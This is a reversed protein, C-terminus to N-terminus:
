SNYLSWLEDLNKGGQGYFSSGMGHGSPSRGSFPLSAWEPALKDMVTKFEEKSTIVKDPNVGRRETLFRGAKEQSEPSFDTLGLANKAEDWTTSLFQYAGSADSTYGGGTRRQRPHKSMDSFQTGTFQTTYGKDGTTGEGYRIVKSLRGWGESTNPLSSSSTSPLVSGSSVGVNPNSSVKSSETTSGPTMLTTSPTSSADPNISQKLLKILEEDRELKAKDIRTQEARIEKNEAERLQREKALERNEKIMVAGSAVAGLGAVAGAFRKSPAEIAEVKENNKRTADAEQKNAYAQFGKEHLKKNANLAAKRKSTRIDNSQNVISTVDLSNQQTTKYIDTLSQSTKKGISSYDAM